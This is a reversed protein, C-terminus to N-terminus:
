SIFREFATFSASAPDAVVTSVVVVTLILSGAESFAANKFRQLVCPTVGLLAIRRSIRCALPRPGVSSLSLAAIMRSRVACVRLM